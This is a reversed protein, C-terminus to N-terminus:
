DSFYEKICITVIRQLVRTQESHDRANEVDPISQWIGKLGVLLQEPPVNKEKADRALQHLAIRLEPGPESATSRVYRELARRVSDVTEQALANPPMPGTDHQTMMAAPRERHAPADTNGLRRINVARPMVDLADQTADSRARTSAVAELEACYGDAAPDM